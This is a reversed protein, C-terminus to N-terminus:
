FRCTERLGRLFLKPALEEFTDVRERFKAALDFNTKAFQICPKALLQIDFAQDAVGAFIM